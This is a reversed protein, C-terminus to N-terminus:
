MAAQLRRIDERWAATVPDREPDKGEDRLRRKRFALEHEATVLAASLEPRRRDIRRTRLLRDAEIAKYEQESIARGREEALEERIVRREKLGGRWLALAIITVYPLFIVLQLLSASILADLFGIEPPPERMLPSEGIAASALAFVLPLLNNLVHAQIALLLGAIPAVVRLWLRPTALAVGLLAGFIATFMAHGGLGLLAFRGGLQLGYPAVGWQAYGQAVYLASEFWNFGLGVLAGYVVGDRLSDFEGRLLWFVVLVGLAKAIEETIPASIPAAVLIAADPGLAEALTPHQTVWLDVVRFFATNFPLSIATAILGGWLMAAAFIWPTERERRDLSWLVWLPVVSLASSAILARVFVQAVESRTGVLLGLHFFTAVVLLSLLAAAAAISIRRRRLPAAMRLSDREAGVPIAQLARSM